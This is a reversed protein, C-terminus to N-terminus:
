LNALIERASQEWSFHKARALGKKILPTPTKLAKQTLTALEQEDTPDKLLLAAKGVVEPLSSNSSTIVPCACAMAELPPIGFGEYLSPFLFAKARSYLEPLKQHPLYGPFHIRKKLDKPIEDFISQTKWGKGGVIVLHLDPYSPALATFARISTEVNKRPQLTGLSLLYDKPLKLSRTKVPEFNKAIAPPAFVHPKKKSLPKLQHLDKLTSKSITVIFQCRKLARTLTLKEVLTPFWHHDPYLFAIMDHVVISTKLRRPALAPVIFSTPSFYHDVPNQKLHRLVAFHWALGKAKIVVQLKKPFDPNLKQTYLRLNKHQKLLAKTIEKTYVSKGAGQTAAERIDIAISKTAM